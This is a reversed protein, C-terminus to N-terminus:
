SIPAYTVSNKFAAENEANRNKRYKNLLRTRKMHEKKLDKTVFPQDNGRVYKMKLPANQDCIKLLLDDFDDHTMLNLDVGALSFNLDNLMKQESYNKYNRYLVKKPPKKRFTTKLVTLVLHHFDSLGTELTSSNQFCNVRNTLILDICSPNNKSKFCTNKKILSRLSYISTFEEMAEESM